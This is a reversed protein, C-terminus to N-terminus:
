RGQMYGDDWLTVTGSARTAPMDLIRQNESGRFRLMLNRKDDEYRGDVLVDLSDLLDDTVKGCYREGTSIQEYTYGSFAWVSKGPLEQRVRQVLALVQPQNEPEFPEGGLLTLGAIYGPRLSDLIYTTTEETFPQGFDFSWTEPQFCNKCHNRCGSVFLVTRCGPGNAIDCTKIVSYNM